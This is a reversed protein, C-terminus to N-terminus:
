ENRSYNPIVLLYTFKSTLLKYLSILFQYVNCERHVNVLINHSIVFFIIM